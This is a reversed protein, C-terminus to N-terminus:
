YKVTYHVHDPRWVFCNYIYIYTVINRSIDSDYSFPMLMCYLVYYKYWYHRSETLCIFYFVIHILLVLIHYIVIIHVAVNNTSLLITISTHLM